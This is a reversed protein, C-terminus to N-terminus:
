NVMLITPGARGGQGVRCSQGEQACPAAGGAPLRPRQLRAVEPGDKCSEPSREVFNRATGQARVLLPRCLLNFCWPPRASVKTPALTTDAGSHIAESMKFGLNGSM